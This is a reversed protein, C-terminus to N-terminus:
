FIMPSVSSVCRSNSLGISSDYLGNFLAYTGSDPLVEFIMNEKFLKELQNSYVNVTYQQAEHLLKHLKEGYSEDDRELACLRGAIDNDDYPVIIGTTVDAIVDFNEWATKFSQMYPLKWKENNHTRMYEAVANQNDSLMDLVTTDKKDVSYKLLSNSLAGYFYKFYSEIVNPHILNCIKSEKDASFERLIRGMCEQGIKLEELSGLKEDTFAFIAVKGRCLNGNEDRLENNRNCRGATQIISDLGSLYRLAGEFSLDVGAEILRTSVCVVKEGSGLKKRIEAIVNKRHAPCMNTSLHFVYDTCGTEKVLEFLEKAQPKTNVVALFSNVKKMQGQVYDCIEASTHAKIGGKTMDIFDVRKLSEFHEEINPIVECGNIRYVEDGIRDLGPQTATCLMASCGCVDVLYKLGWNFLYTTKVPLTQIEDFVFVSEALLHMRRIKKTGAGFLTELFQVMTTIIVPADWTEEFRSYNEESEKLDTKKEVSLNSHCELVIQGKSNEDELVKRIEDANQDLISTYPAIIFIKKMKFKKAQELAFRLSAFTKGAGTFASCCYIGKESQGFSACQNSVNERIRGLDTDLKMKALRNELKELLSAWDPIETYKGRNVSEGNEFSASDTRDADILCSSFNRLHLGMNFFLQKKSAANSKCPFLLVKKGDDNFLDSKLCNQIEEKISDPLNKDIEAIDSELGKKNLRNCFESTGDTCIMDPLGSGHHYMIAAQIATKALISKGSLYKELLLGGATSHDKKSQIKGEVSDKLYKQWNNTAKGVDHLLGAFKELEGFDFFKGFDLAIEATGNLHEKLPQAKPEKERYRAILEMRGMIGCKLTMSHCQLFTKRLWCLIQCPM